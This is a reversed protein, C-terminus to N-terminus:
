GNELINKVQAKTSAVAPRMFPRTYEVVHAYWALYHGVYVRVDGYNGLSKFHALAFGYKEENREVVRVSKKLEGADRKTWPQGAYPGSRYMPRSITGVPCNRRVRDAMVEAAKKLRKRSANVVMKDAERWSWNEVRM